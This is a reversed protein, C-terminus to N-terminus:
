RGVVAPLFVQHGIVVEVSRPRGPNGETDISYIVVRYRGPENFEGTVASFIDDGDKDELKPKPVEEWVFQEQVEPLTYSPKYIAAWVDLVGEDDVVEAEIRHQGNPLPTVRGWRVYSAYVPQPPLGGQDFGRLQAVKGDDADNPQGDGDDDLWPTQDWHALRVADRAALFAAYLTSGNGLERFFHDSFHITKERPYALSWAGASSIVVRGAKSLTAGKKDIFSGSQCAELIVNVVLGPVASELESLWQDLEKAKVTQSQGNLYIRDEGGHDVIYLTLARDAAVKDVAWTTIAAKLNDANALANVDKIGDKDPDLTLETALYYIRDASYGRTRFLRYVDNAANHINEQLFDGHALRGAAIILAGPRPEVELLRVSLRYVWDPDGGDPDNDNLRVFATGTSLADYVYRVEPYLPNESVRVVGGCSDYLEVVVDADSDPPVQAEILYKRGVEVPFRVWDQDGPTHFTHIWVAGDTPIPRAQQCADDPEYPDGDTQATDTPTPTNTPTPTLTLTVTPTETPTPTPTFTPTDSPTPTRTPTVTPTHTPTPTPTFTPTLTPTDTPTHTPTVTPTHTPTHTPTSTPSLTITPTHTPTPTPTHTVNLIVGGFGSVLTYDGSSSKGSAVDGLVTQARYDGGASPGGSGFSFGLLRFGGEQAAVGQWLLLLTVAGALLLVAFTNRKSM